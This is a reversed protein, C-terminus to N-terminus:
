LKYYKLNFLVFISLLLFFLNIALHYQFNLGNLIGGCGCVEYRGTNYLFIIYASFIFITLAFFLVGLKKNFLLFGVVAFELSFILYPLFILWSDPFVGTRAINFRLAQINLIKYFGTYVFFFVFTGILLSILKIKM